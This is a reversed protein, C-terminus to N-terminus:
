KHVIDYYLHYYNVLVISLRPYYQNLLPQHLLPQPPAPAYEFGIFTNEDQISPQSSSTATSTISTSSNTASKSATSSTDTTDILSNSIQNEYLMAITSGAYYAVIM